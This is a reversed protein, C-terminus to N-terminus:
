KNIFRSLYFDLFYLPIVRCPYQLFLKIEKAINTFVILFNKKNNIISQYRHKIFSFAKGKFDFQEYLM